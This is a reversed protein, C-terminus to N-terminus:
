SPGASASFLPRLRSMSSTVEIFDSTQYDDHQDSVKHLKLLADNVECELKLAANMADLGTGWEDNEPKPIPQLIVKGGRSVQHKM